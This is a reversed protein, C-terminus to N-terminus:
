LCYIRKWYNDFCNSSDSSIVKAPCGACVVNSPFSKNVVSNAGIITHSGININGMLKSGAFIVVSDGIIPCGALRGGFSRGITVDNHITVNRGIVASEAIVISGYHPFRLGGGIKTGLPLQITFKHELHKYILIILPMCLKAIISRKSKIWSGFRFWVTFRFSEYKLYAVIYSPRNGDRIFRAHDDRLLQIYERYTM